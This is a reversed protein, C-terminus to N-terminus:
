LSPHKLSLNRLHQTTVSFSIFVTSLPGLTTLFPDNNTLFILDGFELYNSWGCDLPMSLSWIILALIPILPVRHTLDELIVSWSPSPTPLLSYLKAPRPRTPNWSRGQLFPLSVSDVGFSLLSWLRQKFTTGSFEESLNPFGPSIHPISYYLTIQFYSGSASSHWPLKSKWPGWPYSHDGPSRLAPPLWYLASDLTRLAM